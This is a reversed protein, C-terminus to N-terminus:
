IKMKLANLFIKLVYELLREQTQNLFPQINVQDLHWYGTGKFSILKPVELHGGSEGLKKIGEFSEKRICDNVFKQVEEAQLNLEATKKAEEEIKSKKINNYVFFGIIVAVFLIIGIIVFFSAQAKNDLKKIKQLKQRNRFIQM